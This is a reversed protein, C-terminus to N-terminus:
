EPTYQDGKPLNREKQMQVVAYHTGTFILVGQRTDNVLEWAGVLPSDAGTSGVRRHTFSFGDTGGGSVQTTTM